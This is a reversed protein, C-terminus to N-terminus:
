SRTRGDLLINVEKSTLFIVAVLDRICHDHNYTCTYTHIYSHIFTHGRKIAHAIPKIRLSFFTVTRATILM